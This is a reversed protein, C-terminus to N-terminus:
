IQSPPRDAPVVMVAILLAVLRVSEEAAVAIIMFPLM